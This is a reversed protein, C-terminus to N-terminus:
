IEKYVFGGAERRLTLMEDLIAPSYVPPLRFRISGIGYAAELSETERDTLQCLLFDRAENLGKKEALGIAELLLRKGERPGWLRLVGACELYVALDTVHGFAIAMGDGKAYREMRVMDELSRKLFGNPEPLSLAYLFRVSRIAFFENRKAQRAAEREDARNRFMGAAQWAYAASEELISADGVTDLGHRNASEHFREHRKTVAVRTQEPCSAYYTRGDYCLGELPMMSVFRNKGRRLEGVKKMVLKKALRPEVDWSVVVTDRLVRKNSCVKIDVM